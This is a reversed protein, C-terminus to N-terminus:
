PYAYDECSNCSCNARKANVGSPSMTHTYQMTDRAAVHIFRCPVHYIGPLQLPNEEHGSPQARLWHKLNLLTSRPRGIPYTVPWICYMFMHDVM